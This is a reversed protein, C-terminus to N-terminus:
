IIDDDWGPYDFEMNYTGNKTIIESKTLVENEDYYIFEAKPAIYKKMFKNEKLSFRQSTGRLGGM